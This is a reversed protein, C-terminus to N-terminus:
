PMSAMALKRLYSRREEKTMNSNLRKVLENVELRM